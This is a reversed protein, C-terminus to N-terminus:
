SVGKVGKGAEEGCPRVLVAAPRRSGVLMPVRRSETAKLSASSTSRRLCAADVGLALPSTFSVTSGRSLFVTAFYLLSAYQTFLACSWLM